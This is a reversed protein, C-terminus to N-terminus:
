NSDFRHYLARVEIFDNNQEDLNNPRVIVAFPQYGSQHILQCVEERSTAQGNTNKLNNIDWEQDTVVILVRRFSLRKLKTRLLAFQKFLGLLKSENRSKYCHKLKVLNTLSDLFASMKLVYSCSDM